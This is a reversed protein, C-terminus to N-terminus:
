VFKCNHLRSTNNIKSRHHAQIMELYTVQHRKPMLILRCTGEKSIFRLLKSMIPLRLALENNIQISILLLLMLGALTEDIQQYKM